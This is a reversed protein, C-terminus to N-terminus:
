EIVASRSYTGTYNKGGKGRAGPIVYQKYNEPTGALDNNTGPNDRDTGMPKVGLTAYTGFTSYAAAAWRWGIDISAVDSAFTGCVTVPEVDSPLGGAPAVWPMGTLFGNDDLDWPVTTIWVNNVSDFTTSAATANPDITINAGPVAQNVGLLNGSADKYQFQASAQYFTVHILRKTVDHVKFISNFWITSGRPVAVNRFDSDICTQQSNLGTTVILNGSGSSPVLDASGAFSASLTRGNPESSTIMISCSATGNATSPIPACVGNSSLVDSAVSSTLAISALVSADMPIVMGPATLTVTATSSQGVVVSTPSLAVSLSTTEPVVTLTGDISLIAYNNLVSAAGIASPVVPYSGVVSTPVAATTFSLTIADANLLGTFTGTFAPNSAGYPRMANSAAITLPAPTITLAGPVYTIAYNVATLGSCHIAYASSVSSAPTAATSCLLAGGLSALSDGNVFGSITATFTPNASGYPRTANNATVTLTDTSIALAGLLFTISYNESTLGSCLIPYSGAPSTQTAATTCLLTGSLSALGDGNVFGLATVSFPPNASGYARAANNASIVLNGPSITLTGPVFSITYNTSALGSCTIPYTGVSSSSTAPSVCAVTGSLSGLSDGNVLGSPTVNNLGPNPTGYGRTVNSATLILPATHIVLTGPAFTIVYSPSSLGTCTIPYSGVPSSPTATTTCNLTGTLSAPTDGNVFGSYTAQNLSPTTQGYQQTANAATVTLPTLGGTSNPTVSQSANFTFQTGVPDATVGSVALTFTTVASPIDLYIRVTTSAGANLADLSLPVAPSLGTDYAVQGSGSVTTFLFQTITTIVAADTGTNTVALDFFLIGPAQMGTDALAVTIQPVGVKGSQSVNSARARNQRSLIPTPAELASPYAAAFAEFAQDYSALAQQNQGALMLLDGQELLGDINNPQAGLLVGIDALAQSTSGLILDYAALVSYKEEQQVASLPSPESAITISVANSQVTGSFSGASATSSTNLIGVANYSGAPLSKSAAPSVTWLMTAEVGAGLSATGLPRYVLSLPWTQTVGNADALTVQMADAWSGTTPNLVIPTVNGNAEQADPHNVQLQFVLPWGQYVAPAGSNNVVLTLDPPVPQPPAQASVSSACLLLMVALGKMGPLRGLVLTEFTAMASVKYNM